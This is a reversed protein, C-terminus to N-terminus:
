ILMNRNVDSYEVVSVCINDTFRLLLAESYVNVGNPSKRYVLSLLSIRM